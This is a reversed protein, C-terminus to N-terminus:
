HRYNRRMEACKFFWKLLVSRERSCFNEFNFASISCKDCDGLLSPSSYILQLANVNRFLAFCPFNCLRCHSISIMKPPTQLKWTEITLSYFNYSDWRRKSYRENHSGLNNPFVNKYHNSCISIVKVLINEEITINFCYESIIHNLNFVMLTYYASSAFEAVITQLTPM